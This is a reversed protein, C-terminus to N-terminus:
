RLDELARALRRRATYLRSMVTGIPVGLLGAIERYRLGEFERLVLMERERDPLEELAQDVHPAIQEWTPEADHRPQTM